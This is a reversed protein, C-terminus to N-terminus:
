NSCQIRQAEQAARRQISPSASPFEKKLKDFTACAEEIKVLQILSIALKLLNDEAKNGKPFDQYGKLFQVAAEDYRKRVYYTEGLWYYANSALKHTAHKELFEQLISEAEEYQKQKLLTFAYEYLETPPAIDSPRSMLPQKPTVAQSNIVQPSPPATVVVPAPTFHPAALTTGDPIAKNLESLQKTLVENEKKLQRVTYEVTEIRGYLNRIQEEMETIRVEISALNASSAGGGAAPALTTVQGKYVAQQLTLLDREM